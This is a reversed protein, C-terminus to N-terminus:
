NKFYVVILLISKVSWLITRPWNTIILKDIAESSFGNQLKNHLPVSFTFTSIWIGLIALLNITFYHNNLNKSFLDVATILEILMLPAVIWTIKKSHFIEFEIFKSHEIFHFSPYHVLQIIWILGTLLLSCCFQVYFIHPM